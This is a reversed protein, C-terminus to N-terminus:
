HPTRTNHKRCKIAEQDLNGQQWDPPLNAEASTKPMLRSGDVVDPLFVIAAIALNPVRTTGSIDCIM